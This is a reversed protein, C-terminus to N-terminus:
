APKTCVQIDRGSRTRIVSSAFGAERVRTRFDSEEYIRVHDEVSSDEITRSVGPPMPHQMLARGGPRLVRHLERLAGRDDPIHELVHNILVVDFEGDRFPLQAIDAQVDVPRLEEAGGGLLMLVQAELDTTVYHAQRPRLIREICAEPAFHLVHETPAILDEIRACLERHRELAGCGPCRAGRRAPRGYPEFEAFRGRCCACRRRRLSPLRV